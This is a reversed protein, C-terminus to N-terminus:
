TTGEEPKSPCDACTAKVNQGFESKWTHDPLDLPVLTDPPCYCFFGSDYGDSFHPGPIWVAWSTGSSFKAVGNVPDPALHHIAVHQNERIDAM